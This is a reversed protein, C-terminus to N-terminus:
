VTRRALRLVSIATGIMENEKGEPDFKEGRGNSDHINFKGYSDLYVLRGVALLPAKAVIAM